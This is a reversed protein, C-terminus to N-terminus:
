FPLHLHFKALALRQYFLENALAESLTLDRLKVDLFYLSPPSLDFAELCFTNQYDAFSEVILKLQM